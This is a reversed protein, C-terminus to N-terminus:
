YPPDTDGKLEAPGPAVLHHWYRRSAERECHLRLPEASSWWAAGCVPSQAVEVRRRAYRVLVAQAPHGYRNRYGAQVLAIRPQVEDLFAESSSTKSGHHPVLLLDARLGPGAARVLEREQALEIDGALLAVSGAAQGVPPEPAATIRLVCSLANPRLAPMAYHAPQPHLFEFRVGDWTWHQGALCRLHRYQAALAHGHGMSSVLTADAHQALVSAAGGAHDSDSHSVVVLDLQEGLARLLPVLVRHGADSDTGQRPGTDYLLGHTATRVIVANGQGIDAALLEFQGPAPRPPQWTLLPWMLPVGLVRLAPPLRLVLLLGGALAAGAVWAPAAAVSWTAAPVLACARLLVMLAQVAWSGADWLPAWAAGAMALPTVVATVWPIAFLNALLGVLSVQGFLALTLPALAVTILVQERLLLRLRSSPGAPTVAPDGRDTAFLVGVALFSLWFGPQLLAWPDLLAMGAAAFGWTCPWPWRLGALRLVTVCALMWVTRQAPLGGGSFSAYVAALLVAGVLAVQTAPWALCLRSSRRWAAGVLAAALWAFMTVHLGSISMLHAVGTTRFLDWDAQTIAQQDGVALAALIGASTTEAVRALVADRLSQRARELSLASGAALRAPPRDRPGARVTGTAQIGREWLWLEHDFGGPNRAGHPARLRVVFQWRDGAQILGGTAGAGPLQAPSGPAGYWTLLLRPPVGASAAQTVDFIFRLGLEGRQPMEQIVGQVLLDQGELAPPLAHQAYHVARWGTAGFAACGLGLALACAQRPLCLTLGTALILAYSWAPALQAQQLQLATGALIGALGGTWHM